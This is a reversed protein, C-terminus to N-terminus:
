ISPDGPSSFGNTSTRFRAGARRLLDQADQAVSLLEQVSMNLHADFLKVLANSAAEMLSRYQEADAERDRRHMTAATTDTESM